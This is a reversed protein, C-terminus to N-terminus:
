PQKKSLGTPEKTGLMYSPSAKSQNWCGSFSEERVAVELPMKVAEVDSGVDKATEM